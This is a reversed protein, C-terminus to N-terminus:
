EDKMLQCVSEWKDRNQKMWYVGDLFAFLDDVTGYTPNHRFWDMANQFTMDHMYLSLTHGWARPDQPRDESTRKPKDFGAGYAIAYGPRLRGDVRAM